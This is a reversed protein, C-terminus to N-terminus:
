EKSEKWFINQCHSPKRKELPPTVLLYDDGFRSKLFIDYKEISSVLFGGFPIEVLNNYIDAPLPNFHSNQNCLEYLFREKKHNEKVLNKHLKKTIFDLSLVSFLKFLIKKLPNCKFQVKLKTKRVSTWFGILHRRVKEDKKTMNDIPFIDIFVGHSITKIHSYDYNLIVTRTDCMKAYNLPFERYQYYSELQFYTNEFEKKAIFLLKEYEERKMIIDIDDDWPVFGGYKIAGLLTGGEISYKINHKKCVADFTKLMDTQINQIESLSLKKM